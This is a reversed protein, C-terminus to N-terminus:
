EKGNADLEGGFLVLTPTGIVYETTPEVTYSVTDSGFGWIIMLDARASEGLWLGVSCLLIAGVPVSQGRM